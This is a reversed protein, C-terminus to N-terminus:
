FGLVRRCFPKPLLKRTIAILAFCTSVTILVVIFQYLPQLSYIINAKQVISVVKGLILIHILYIGYSYNGIAVLFKPWYRFRERMYLFGFIICISYLVLPYRMPSITFKLNDYKSLIILGELELILLCVLIAPFILLWRNKRVIAKNDWNGVLLGIEYFIIWSYFPLYAPVHGIINFVKSLYLALLSIINLAFVLIPGYSRRNIHQLLPTLVYLQAIVVIFYYGTCAGGLLLGFMIQHANVNHTKIATCGFFILSWFIYPILIRSLKVMLFTKCDKLTKISKKSSWYGSMFVLAPVAFLLSQLFSVLFFFNWQGTPSYRWSFATASAHIAVVAIIAIGRFADFSLDRDKQMATCQQWLNHHGMIDFEIYPAVNTGTVWAPTFLSALYPGASLPTFLRKNLLSNRFVLGADNSYGRCDQVNKFFHIKHKYKGARHTIINYTLIAKLPGTYPFHPFSVLHM